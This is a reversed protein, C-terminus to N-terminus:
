WRASTRCTTAVRRHTSSRQTAAATGCPARSRERRSRTASRPRARARARPRREAPSRHRARALRAPDREEAGHLHRRATSRRRRCQRPRTCHPSRCRSRRAAQPHAAAGDHQRDVRLRASGAHRAVRAEGRFRAARRDRRRPLLPRRRLRVVRDGAPRAGAFLDDPTLVDVLDIPIPRTHHRGIGDARWRSGTAVAVHDFGYERVEDATVESELAIEVNALKGLQSRRYDVVRIWAALGPLRAEHLVRGGLERTAEALTVEYGRKGLAM